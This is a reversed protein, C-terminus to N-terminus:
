LGYPLTSSAPGTTPAPSMGRHRAGNGCPTTRFGEYQHLWWTQLAWPSRIATAGGVNVGALREAIRSPVGLRKWGLEMAERSVSDFARRIDWSSIYLPTGTEEAYERANILQLHLPPGHGYGPGPPLRATCHRPGPTTGVGTHYTRSHYRDLTEPYSRPAPPPSPRRAHSKGGPEQTQPM